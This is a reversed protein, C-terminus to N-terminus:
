SCGAPAPSGQPVWQRAGGPMTCYAGTPSPGTGERTTSPAPGCGFPCIFGGVNGVAGAICAQQQAVTQWVATCYQVSLRGPSQFAGTGTYPTCPAGPPPANAAPYCYGYGVPQDTSQVPAANVVQTLVSSTASGCNGDGSYAATVSHSGTTLSSTTFTAAGGSPTVPTGATGDVTFTVTGTPTFTCSVTATFTVAQGHTSPNQSSALAVSTGATGVVQTLTSSTSAACNGDGSYAASVTHSGPSLSSATFTAVGNVLTVATGPVGDITFTATGTPTVACTVTATFTVPQGPASPNASSALTTGVGAMNVMQTLTSSTSTACNSDGSYAATASHGGVALSGTTFTATGNVLTMPTGPAGDVTFTVTGTPTFGACMVTATFTVSQGLTSPNPTSTLRTGAAAANVTQTIASSTSPACNSDGSYAATAPHAGVALTSTSFTAIPSPFVLTVPSGPAGDITFTVAGAPSFGSNCFITASFTVQQGVTSPNPNSSLLTTSAIAWTLVVQGNQAPGAGATTSTNTGSNFSGGGGGGAAVGGGGGGSYGGGGGGGFGSAGGGGFGGVAAGGSGGAAGNSVSRGGSGAFGGIDGGNRSYGGGGGSNFSGGGGGGSGSSGGTGGGGGGNGGSGTSNGDGGASGSGGAGGGGGAAILPTVANTVYVFSGGGGSGGFGAASAGAGGTIVNLSAGVTVAFTGVQGAGSGGAAGSAGGGGAGLVTITISSVGAPVTFFQVTGVFNYTQSLASAPLAGRMLGLALPLAILVALLAVRRAAPRLGSALV